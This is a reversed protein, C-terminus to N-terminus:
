NFINILPEKPTQEILQADLKNAFSKVDESPYPDVIVTPYKNYDFNELIFDNIKSDKCGYGIIVLQTSSKLNEKFHNFVEKYYGYDDYRLIKSSTGSLFDPYYNTFDNEYFYGKDDSYTEKYLNSINLRPKIKIFERPDGNQHHFPYQDISGHLKYLRFITDYKHNFYALRIMVNDEIRGYFKSGLEEFGDSLNGKIWDTHYFKEFLMDHNLSHIHVISDEGMKEILQLFGFYEEPLPKMQHIPKYFNNGERDVLLIKILQNVMTITKSVLTRDNYELLHEESTLGYEDRFAQAKNKFDINGLLEPNVLFDYFEEYNFEENQNLFLSILERLFFKRKSDASYWFPDEQEPDELQFLNGEGDISYNELEFNRIQNNLQNATPYGYNVSFGAGLLFSVCGTLEKPNGGYEFDPLVIDTFEKEM